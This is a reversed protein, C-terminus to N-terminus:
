RLPSGVCEFWGDAQAVWGAVELRALRMAADVLSLGLVLAVGDITRPDRQLERYVALDDGKPRARLDAALVASHGHQFSLFTLVDDACTVPVAGDLILANAGASARRGVPGPVAMVTIDRHVADGATLLSGGRERSEVVVVAESLAAVIRNRLPFRHAEPATGPPSESILLGCNATAQWLDRHERPYVVDLGSAVIGIPRGEGEAALVGQHACGDIGRALGSVVHVGAAALGLGISRSAERGGATANRTGVIAVRRGALLGLNGRVFLVPPPLPDDLLCAPYGPAGYPLVQLGLEHCRAWVEGPPREGACTRWSARVYPDSLVRAVLGHTPAEGLAVAWAQEPPHHRLLASLRHVNMNRFGALAAVYAEAPLDTTTTPSM